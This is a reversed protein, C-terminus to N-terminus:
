LFPLTNIKDEDNIFLIELDISENKLLEKLDEITKRLESEAKHFVQIICNPKMLSFILSNIYQSRHCFRQIKIQNEKSLNKLNILLLSFYYGLREMNFQIRQGIIIKKKYLQKLKYLALEGSINAKKAIDILKTRGDNEILKLIEIEKNDLKQKESSHFILYTEIKQNNLMKLPYLEAYHPRIILYDIISEKGNILKFIYDQLENEDKFILNLYIDYKGYANGKSICHPDREKKHYFTDIDKSREFKIFLTVFSSYSLASYNFLTVFKKILGTSIYKNLKYEVQERTLKCAKAIKTLPERNNHYIYSLLREDTEKLNM